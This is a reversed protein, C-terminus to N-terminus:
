TLTALARVRAFATVLQEAWPWHEAIRLRTRRGTRVVVGATHFLCYRLRKPEARALDGDLCILRTWALLDQAVLVLQVWATNIAFNASPLNALGTDKADCIRKEARGRGRHLAELYAIDPDDLDTVFVQYRRGEYDTFTLQAGPHPDERRVIARTGEPWRSLDIMDTIEAVEADDREDTGNATTAPVWWSNPVSVCAMRIPATLDHGVAFRVGRARCADIFGHTLAASDTRAIVEHEHPDIPLQELALDLIEVHDATTNSGANGPRLLGALAEGTADLYAMLPHFGFGRKYNPAAGEKESHSNVLTGDFDIVYFGPDAGAAWARKRAAARAVAIRVLAAADIAELTRWATSLSAVEGFLNAQDRLVALDSITEGGGALMVALDVLVDGRDHGRCRQKTPLMAVSLGEILGLADALDCLLRSGAHGVVNKADGTVLLRPRTSNRQM